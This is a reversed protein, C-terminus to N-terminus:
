KNDMIMKKYSGSSVIKGNELKYIIDCNQLTTLRHAIVILTKSGKLNKIENIIEKETDSDLASTAEDMIIVDRNHYLARALAIRQRQGGSVRVGREGIKTDIGEPLQNVLESLQAQNIAEIIEKDDVNDKFDLAINSRLSDDLLFIQQPIYAIQSRWKDLCESMSTDNYLVLGKDPHLLGLILDVLTTKGSGSKGILGISDGAKIKISVNNLSKHKASKYSFDVDSLSVSQFSTNSGSKKISHRDRDVNQRFKYIDKYLRNISDRNNRLQLLTLSVSNASPLLRLAAMGFLGLTPVVTQVDQNSILASLVLIVIFSVMLFELLSKPIALIVQYKRSYSAHDHVGKAFMQFFFSEKGLVRVEKLGEIGENMGQLMSDSAKNSKKGYIGVKKKFLFDYGFLITGVLMLLFMLASINQWALLSLIFIGVILDSITRLLLLVVSSFISTLAQINHTYESSNRQLYESYPLSQYAKMLFSSLNVRQRLSFFIIIKNVLIVLLSKIFFIVLLMVSMLMLLSEKEKPLDIFPLTYKYWENVDGTDIVLSIYPAILGLGIVEVSSLILFLLVLFPIKRKEVDDILYLIQSIYKSM